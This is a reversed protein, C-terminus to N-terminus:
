NEGFVNSKEFALENYDSRCPRLDLSSVGKGCFRAELDRLLMAGRIYGNTEAEMRPASDARPRVRLNSSDVVTQSTGGQPVCAIQSIM